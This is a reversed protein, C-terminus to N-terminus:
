PHLWLMLLGAAIPVVLNDNLTLTKTLKIPVLELLTTLLAVALATTFPLRGQWHNLVGPLFPFVGALLALCVAFCALSGELTKDGLRVRGVSQGVLAALADGLIFIAIVMCAIEAHAAFVVSCIFSSAFIWTAGTLRRDEHSRLMAGAYRYFHKQVAPMRVRAFEVVLSGLLLVALIAAPLHPWVGPIRPLYFIGLPILTGSLIHLLKRNVEERPLKM